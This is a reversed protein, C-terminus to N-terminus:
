CGDLARIRAIYARGGRTQTEVIARGDCVKSITAYHYRVSWTDAGLPSVDQLDVPERLASYFASLAAGSFPGAGRKEPVVMQAATDGQGAHLAAYFARITTAATGYDATPDRASDAAAAPAVANVWAVLPRHHHGTEAAMGDYLGLTVRRNVMARLASEPAKGPVVQVEDFRDSADAFDDGAICIPSDLHLVYIPEPTDGKQVDEFGPAGAAIAFLLRGTLSAPEGRSLDFCGGPGTARPASERPALAERAPAPASVATAKASASAGGQPTNGQGNCAGLAACIALTIVSRPM